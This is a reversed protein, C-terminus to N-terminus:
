QANRVHGREQEVSARMAREAANARDHAEDYALGKDRMLVAETAEHFLAFRRADMAQNKAEVWLENAPIFPYRWHNGGETFDMNHDLKVRDGDVLVVTFGAYTGVPIPAGEVPVQHLPLAELAEWGTSERLPPRRKRKRRAQRRMALVGPAPPLLPADVWGGVTATTTAEALTAAVRALHALAASASGTYLVGTGGAARWKVLNSATDDILVCGQRENHPIDRLVAPKDKDIVVRDGPKWAAAKVPPDTAIGHARLWHVKGATVEPVQHTGPSSLITPVYPQLGRWLPLAEPLLPMDAWWRAGREMIPAWAADDGHAKEMAAMNSGTLALYHNDFDTLVGDMDVFVRLSIRKTGDPENLRHPLPGGPPITRPEGPVYDPDAHRPFMAAFRGHLMQPVAEVPLAQIRALTLGKPTSTFIRWAEYADERSLFGRGLEQGAWTLGFRRENKATRYEGVLPPTRGPDPWTPQYLDEKGEPVAPYAPTLRKGRQWVKVWEPGQPSWEDGVEANPFGHKALTDQIVRDASPPKPQQALPSDKRLSAADGLTYHVDQNRSLFCVGYDPDAVHQAIEDCADQLKARVEAWSGEAEGLPEQAESVRLRKGKHEPAQYRIWTIDAWQGTKRAWSRVATKSPFAAVARGDAWLVVYAMGKEAKAPWDTNADMRDLHGLDGKSLEGKGEPVTATGKDASENAPASTWTFTGKCARCTWLDTAEDFQVGGREPIERGCHPCTPVHEVRTKDKWQLRDEASEHVRPGFRRGTPLRSPHVPGYRAEVERKLDIRRAYNDQAERSLPDTHSKDLYDLPMDHGRGAAIMRDTWDREQAELKDLEKNIAAASMTRPDKAAENV